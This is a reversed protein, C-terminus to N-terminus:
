NRLFSPIQFFGPAHIFFYWYAVLLGGTTGVGYLALEGAEQGIPADKVFPMPLEYPEYVKPRGNGVIMHIPTAVLDLTHLACIGTHLGVYGVFVFPLALKAMPGGDAIANWADRGAMAPVEIPSTLTVYGDVLFRDVGNHVDASTTCSSLALPLIAALLPAFRAICPVVRPFRSEM